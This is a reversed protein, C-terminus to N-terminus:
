QKLSDAFKSCTCTQNVESGFGLDGSLETPPTDPQLSLFLATFGQKFGFAACAYWVGPEDLKHLCIEQLCTIHEFVSGRYTEFLGPRKMPLFGAALVTTVPATLLFPFSAAGAAILWM